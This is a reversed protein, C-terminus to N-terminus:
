EEGLMYRLRAVFADVTKPHKEAYVNVALGFAFSREDSKRRDPVSRSDRTKLTPKKQSTPM